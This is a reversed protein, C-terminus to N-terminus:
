LPLQFSHLACWPRLNDASYCKEQSDRNEQGPKDKYSGGLCSSRQESTFIFAPSLFFYRCIFEESRRQSADAGDALEKQCPAFHPQTAPPSPFVHKLFFTIFYFLLCWYGQLQSALSPQRPPEALDHLKLHSWSSSTPLAERQERLHSSLSM